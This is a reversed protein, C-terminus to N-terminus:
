ILLYYWAAHARLYYIIIIFYYIFYTSGNVLKEPVFGWFRATWKASYPSDVMSPVASTITGEFLLDAHNFDSETLSGMASLMTM